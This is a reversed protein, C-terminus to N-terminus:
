KEKKEFYKDIKENNILAMRYALGYSCGLKNKLITSLYTPTIHLLNTAIWKVKRGQLFEDRLEVKFHYM